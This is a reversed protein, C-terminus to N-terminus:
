QYLHLEKLFIYIFHSVFYYHYYDIWDLLHASTLPCQIDRISIPVHGVSEETKCSLTAVFRHTATLDYAMMRDNVERCILVEVSV